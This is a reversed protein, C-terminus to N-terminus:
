DGFNINNSASQTPKVVSKLHDVFAANVGNTVSVNQAQGIFQDATFSIVDTNTRDYSSYSPGGWYPLGYYYSYGGSVTAMAESDLETSVTLDSIMLTKM